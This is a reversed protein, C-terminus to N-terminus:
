APSEEEIRLKEATEQLTKKPNGSSANMTTILAPRILVPIMNENLAVPMSPVVTPLVTDGAPHTRTQVSSPHASTTSAFATSKSCGMEHVKCVNEFHDGRKWKIKTCQPVVCENHIDCFPGRVNLVEKHCDYKQLDHSACLDSHVVDKATHYIKGDICGEIICTHEVCFSHLSGNEDDTMRLLKCNKFQCISHLECMKDLKKKRRKCFKGGPDKASCQHRAPVCTNM